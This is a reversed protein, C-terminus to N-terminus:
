RHYFQHLFTSIQIDFVVFDICKRCKQVNMWRLSEEVNPVIWVTDRAPLEGFLVKTVQAAKQDFGQPLKVVIAMSRGGVRPAWRPVFTHVHLQLNQLPFFKTPGPIVAVDKGLRNQRWEAYQVTFHEWCAISRGLSLRTWSTDVWDDPM